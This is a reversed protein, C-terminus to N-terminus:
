LLAQKYIVGGMGEEETIHYVSDPGRTKALQALFLSFTMRVRGPIYSKM